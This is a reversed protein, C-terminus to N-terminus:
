KGFNPIERVIALQPVVNMLPWLLEIDLYISVYNNHTSYHYMFYLNVIFDVAFNHPLAENPMEAENVAKSRHSM